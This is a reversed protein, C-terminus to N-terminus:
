QMNMGRAIAPANTFLEHNRQRPVSLLLGDIVWLCKLLFISLLYVSAKSRFTTKNPYLAQPSIKEQLYFRGGVKKSFYTVYFLCSHNKPCASNSIDVYSVQFWVTLQHSEDVLAWWSKFDYQLMLLDVTSQIKILWICLHQQLTQGTSIGTRNARHPTDGQTINFRKASQM